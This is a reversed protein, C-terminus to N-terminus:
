NYTLHAYIDLTIKAREDKVAEFIFQTKRRNVYHFYTKTGVTRKDIYKSLRQFQFEELATGDKNGIVFDSTSEKKAENLCEFLQPPIPIQRKSATM